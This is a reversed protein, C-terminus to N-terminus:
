ARERRLIAALGNGAAVGKAPHVGPAAEKSVTAIAVEGSGGNLPRPYYLRQGTTTACPTPIRDILPPTFDGMEAEYDAAMWVSRVNVLPWVRGLVFGFAMVVSIELVMVLLWTV